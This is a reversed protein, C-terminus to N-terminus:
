GPGRRTSPLTPAATASVVKLPLNGAWLPLNGAWLPLNRAWLPLNRVCLPLNRVWLPLNWLPLNEPHPYSPITNLVGESILTSLIARDTGTCCGRISRWKSCTSKKLIKAWRAARRERRNSTDPGAIQMFNRGRDLPIPGPVGFFFMYFILFDFM